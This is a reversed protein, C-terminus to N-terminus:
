KLINIYTMAEQFRPDTQSSTGLVEARVKGGTDQTQLTNVKKLERRYSFRIAL